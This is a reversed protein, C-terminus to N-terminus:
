AHHAFIWVHVVGVKRGEVMAVIQQDLQEEDLGALLKTMARVFTDVDVDQVTLKMTKKGM